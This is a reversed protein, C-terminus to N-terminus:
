GIEADRSPSVARSTMMGQSTRLSLGVDEYDAGAGRSKGGCRLQRAGASRDQEDFRSVPDAPAAVRAAQRTQRHRDLEAGFENM